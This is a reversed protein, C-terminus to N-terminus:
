HYTRQYAYKSQPPNGYSYTTYGPLTNALRYDADDLISTFGAIGLANAHAAAARIILVYDDDFAPWDKAPPKAPRYNFIFNGGSDNMRIAPGGRTAALNFHTGDFDRAFYVGSVSLASPFDRGPGGGADYPNFIDGNAVAYHLPTGKITFAPSIPAWSISATPGWANLESITWHDDDRILSPTVHDVGPIVQIGNQEYYHYLNYFGFRKGIETWRTAVTALFQRAKANGRAVALAESQALFAMEWEPGDRQFKSGDWMAWLGRANVYSWASGYVTAGQAFQDVPYNASLDALDNLYKCTQTGDYSVSAPNTPDRPCLLAALQMDRNDWGMTRLEFASGQYNTLVGTAQYPFTTNRQYPYYFLLSGNAVEILSDLFELRGTQLYPWFSYTPGHEKSSSNFGLAGTGDPPKTFGGPVGGDWGGWNVTSAVSAAMGTYSNGSLNVITDTNKDTFDFTQLGAALGGIMNVKRSAKSQNFFDVFANNPMLGIDAHDGAGSQAQLFDAISYPNWDGAFATDPVKGILSLDIPPLIRTSQLYPQYFQDRLTTDAAITGTGQFYLYEGDKDAFTLKGFSYLGPIPHVTGSGASTLNIRTDPTGTGSWHFNFNHQDGEFALLFAVGDNSLGGPLGSGDVYVPLMNGNGGAGTWYKNAATSCGGLNGDSPNTCTTFAEARFPWILATMVKGAGGPGVVQWNVGNAPNTQDPPAFFRFGKAPTDNNYAPQRMQGLWRVGGLNGSADNLLFIYFDFRLQGEPPAGQSPAMMVSVKIAKGADGDLWVSQRYNNSDGTLHASETVTPNAGPIPVPPATVVLRQAYAEALSRSSPAPWTGGGTIAVAHSGGAPVSFTPRLVFASFMLCGDPYYVRANQPSASFPQPTHGDLFKPAGGNCVHGDKFLMGFSKTPVGAPQTRMGDNVFNRTAFAGAPPAPAQVANRPRNDGTQQQTRPSQNPPQSQLSNSSLSGTPPRPMNPDSSTLFSGGNWKYWSGANYAYLNGGNEVAMETAGIGGVFSGNLFIAYSASPPKTAGFAFTGWRTVIGCDSGALVSSGDPAGGSICRSTATTTMKEPQAAAQAMLLLAIPAVALLVRCM